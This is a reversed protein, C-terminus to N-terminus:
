LHHCGTKREMERNCDPCISHSFEVDANRRIYEEV